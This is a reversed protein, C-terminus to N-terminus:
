GQGTWSGDDHDTWLDRLKRVIGKPLPGEEITAVNERVHKASTTGVIAVHVGAAFATFRLALEAWSGEFGLSEPTFGMAKRREVYPKVYDSYFGRFATPARWCGNAIPRKAVVGLGRKRAEAVYTGLGQQDCFNVSTEVADFAAMAVAKAAAAGDGSYGVLRTKGAKRAAVLAGILPEADLRRADCSHLLVLDLHDTRLRRLSQEISEAVIKGSWPRPKLGGAAHGCKTVLVYQDRRDSIARGVKQESDQYCAATDIVNIGADLVAGLIADCRKQSVEHYGIEAAGFGLPTVELDTKGFPRSRM